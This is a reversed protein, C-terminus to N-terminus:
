VCNNYEEILEDFNKTEITLLDPAGFKKMYNWKAKKDIKIPNIRESLTYIQRGFLKFFNEEYVEFNLCPFKKNMTYASDWLYLLKEPGIEIIYLDSEDEFEDAIAIRSANVIFTDVTGREIYLGVSQLFEREQKKSKYIEYPAFVIFTFALVALTGFLLTWFSDPIITTICTFGAGIFAAIIFHYFKIKSRGQKEKNTKLTKLVRLEDPYFNRTKFTIEM